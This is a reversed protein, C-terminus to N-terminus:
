YLDDAERESHCRLDADQPGDDSPLSLFGTSVSCGTDVSMPLLEECGKKEM